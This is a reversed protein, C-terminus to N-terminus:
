GKMASPTTVTAIAEAFHAASHPAADLMLGPENIELEMLHFVDDIVVGDVRAYLLPAKNKTEAGTIHTAVRLAQAAATILHAPPEAPGWHGGLRAQVFIHNPAPKKLVAYSFEGRFFILSWEGEAIQPILPQVLWSKEMLGATFQQQHAEAEASSTTWIERASAGIRPKVVAREWGQERLLTALNASQGNDLWITPVIVIGQAQLDRLYVKDMNWAVVEPPNWLNVRECQLRQLWARFTDPHHQYDWNSRLVVCAFQRWDVAPQNWPLAHPELGCARLPASLLADSASLEPQAQYTVLAIPTM